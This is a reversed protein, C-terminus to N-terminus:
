LPMLAHQDKMKWYAYVGLKRDSELVMAHMAHSTAVNPMPTACCTNDWSRARCICASKARYMYVPYGRTTNHIIGYNVNHFTRIRLLGHFPCCGTTSARELQRTYTLSACPSRDYWLWQTISWQTNLLKIYQTLLRIIITSDPTINSALSLIIIIYLSITTATYEQTKNLKSQSSWHYRCNPAILVSQCWHLVGKM